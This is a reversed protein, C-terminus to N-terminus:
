AVFKQYVRKAIKGYVIVIKMTSKLLKASSVLSFRFTRSLINHLNNNQQRHM